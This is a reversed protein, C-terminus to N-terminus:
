ICDKPFLGYSNKLQDMTIEPYGLINKIGLLECPSHM